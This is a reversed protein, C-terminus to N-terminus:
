MRAYVGRHSRQQPIPGGRPGGGRGLRGRRHAVRPLRVGMELPIGDVKGLERWQERELSADPLRAGICKVLAKCDRM